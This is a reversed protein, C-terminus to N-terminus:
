FPYWFPPCSCALDVRNPHNWHSVLLCNVHEMQVAFVVMAVVAAVAAAAAVVFADVHRMYYMCHELYDLPLQVKAIAWNNSQKQYKNKNNIKCHSNDGACVRLCIASCCWCLFVIPIGNRDGMPLLGAAAAAAACTLGFRFLITFEPCENALSKPWNLLESKIFLVVAGFEWNSNAALCSIINECCCDWWMGGCICDFILGFVNLLCCNGYADGFVIPVFM